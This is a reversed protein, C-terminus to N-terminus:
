DKASASRARRKSCRDRHLQLRDSAKRGEEQLKEDRKIQKREASTAYDQWNSQQEM